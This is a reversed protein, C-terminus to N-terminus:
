EFSGKIKQTYYFLDEYAGEKNNIEYEVEDKKMNRQEPTLKRIYMRGVRLAEMRLKHNFLYFILTSNVV